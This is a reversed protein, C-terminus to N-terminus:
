LRLKILLYVVAFLILLWMLNKVISVPSTKRKTKHEIKIQKTKQKVRNTELEYMKRIHSLSDRYLLREQRSMPVYIKRIITFPISDVVYKTVTFTNTKENYITDTKYIYQYSTDSKIQAGKKIAKSLYYEASCSSMFNIIIYASIFWIITIIVNRRVNM